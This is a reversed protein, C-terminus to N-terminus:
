GEEEEQEKAARRRIGVPDTEGASLVRGVDCLDVDVSIVYPDLKSIKTFSM